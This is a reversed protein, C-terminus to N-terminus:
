IRRSHVRYAWKIEVFAHTSIQLKRMARLGAKGHEQTARTERLGLVLVNQPEEEYGKLGNETTLDTINTEFSCPVGM